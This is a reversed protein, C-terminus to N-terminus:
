YHCVICGKSKNIKTLDIEESKPLDIGECNTLGILKLLFLKLLVLELIWEIM